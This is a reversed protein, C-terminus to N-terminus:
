GVKIFKFLYNHTYQKTQNDYRELNAGIVILRQEVEGYFLQKHLSSHRKRCHSIKKGAM